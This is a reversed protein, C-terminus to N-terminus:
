THAQHKKEHLFIFLRWATNTATRARNHTLAEASSHLHEEREQGERGADEVVPVVAADDEEPAGRSKGSSRREGIM